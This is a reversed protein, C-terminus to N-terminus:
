STSNKQEKAARQTLIHRACCFAGVLAGLQISESSASALNYEFESLNSLLYIKIVAPLKMRMLFETIETIIDTLALGRDTKLKRIKEFSEKFSDNFLSDAIFKIDTPLPKGTCFYVNKENIVPYAMHAAQLVNLARRMDGKSLTLMAKVGDPTVNRGEAEAIQGM